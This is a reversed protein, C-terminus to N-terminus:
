PTRRAAAGPSLGAVVLDLLRAAAAEDFSARRARVTVTTVDGCTVAGVAIGSRGSAAPHFAISGVGPATVVGLNSVLFTAGLRGSLLRIAPRVLTAGSEPFDPEPPTGRLLRRVTEPDADPPIRLRFFATRRDPALATGPRRSAGVAAVVRRTPGSANWTRVASATAATLTATGATTAPLDAVAVVDGDRRGPTATAARTPPSAAARSPPGFVAEALRYATSAAFTRAAPRDGIGRASSAVPVDLASGLLALLGFGDVVGHHAAILLM